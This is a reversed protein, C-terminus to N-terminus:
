SQDYRPLVAELADLGDHADTERILLRRSRPIQLVSPLVTEIRVDIRFDIVGAPALRGLPPDALAPQEGLSPRRQQEVTVALLNGAEIRAEVELDVESIAM